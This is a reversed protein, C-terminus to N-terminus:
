KKHFNLVRNRECTLLKLTKLRQVTSSNHRIYSEHSFTRQPKLLQLYKNRSYAHMHILEVTVSEGGDSGIDKNTGDVRSSVIM